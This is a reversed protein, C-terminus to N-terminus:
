FLMSGCLGLGIIAYVATIILVINSAKKKKPRIAIGLILLLIPVGFALFFLLIIYWGVATSDLLLGMMM